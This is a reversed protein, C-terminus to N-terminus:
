CLVHWIQIMKIFQYYVLFAVSIVAFSYLSSLSTLPTNWHKKLKYLTTDHRTTDSCSLSSSFHFEEYISVHFMHFCLVRQKWESYVMTYLWLFNVLCRFQWVPVNCLCGCSGGQTKQATAASWCFVCLQCKWGSSAWRGQAKSPKKRRLLMM